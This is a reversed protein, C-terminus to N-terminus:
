VGHLVPVKIRSSAHRLKTARRSQSCSTAPEFGAAEVLVEKLRGANESTKFVSRPTSTLDVGWQRYSRFCFSEQSTM